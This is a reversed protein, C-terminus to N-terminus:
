TRLAIRGLSLTEGVKVVITTDFTQYGTARIQVRRPGVPLKLDFVSGVGVPRGDILIEADPPVTLLRLKGTGAPAAACSVRQRLM